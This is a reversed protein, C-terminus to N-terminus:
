RGRWCMRQTSWGQGELGEVEVAKWNKKGLKTNKKPWFEKILMKRVKKEEESKKEVEKETKKKKFQRGEGTVFETLSESVDERWTALREYARVEEDPESDADDDTDNGCAFCFSEGCDCDRSARHLM